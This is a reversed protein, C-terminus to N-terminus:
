VAGWVDGAWTTVSVDQCQVDEQPMNVVAGKGSHMAAAGAIAKAGIVAGAAKAVLAKGALHGAALLPLMEANDAGALKRHGKGSHSVMIQEGGKGTSVV